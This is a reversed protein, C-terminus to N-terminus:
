CYHFTNSRAFKPRRERRLTVAPLDSDAPKRIAWASSDRQGVACAHGAAVLEDPVGARGVLGLMGGEGWAPSPGAARRRWRASRAAAVGVAMTVNRRRRIRRVEVPRRRQARGPRMGDPVPRARTESRASSNRPSPNVAAASGPWRWVGMIPWGCITVDDRSLSGCKMVGGLSGANVSHLNMPASGDHDALTALVSDLVSGPAWLTRTGGLFLVDKGTGDLYVAGVTADLDVISSLEAGLRAAKSRGDDSGDLRLSGVTGPTSLRADKQSAVQWGFWGVVAVLGVAVALLTTLFM